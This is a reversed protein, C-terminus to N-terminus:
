RPLPVKERNPHLEQDFLFASKIKNYKRSLFLPKPRNYMVSFLRQTDGKVYRIEYVGDGRRILGKVGFATTMKVQLWELFPRSASAFTM